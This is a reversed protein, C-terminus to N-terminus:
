LRIPTQLIRASDFASTPGVTRPLKLGKASVLRHRVPASIADPDLGDCDPKEPKIPRRRFLEDAFAGRDGKIKAIREPTAWISGGSEKAVLLYDAIGLVKATHLVRQATSLTLDLFEAIELRTRYVVFEDALFEAIRAVHKSGPAIKM